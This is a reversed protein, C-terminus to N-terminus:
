FDLDAIVPAHDSPQKGKRTDRDISINKCLALLSEPGYIHDIRLGLNKPFALQRYDWWSFAQSEPQLRRFLDVFGLDRIAALAAREDPHCLVQGAWLAPDHVDRDEPAINFDGCLLLPGGQERNSDLWTKCRRLWDLKYAFKESDISGGNPVYVSAIRVPGKITAVTAVIFRSQPDEVGDGFGRQVDTAPSRTLIAVGNYTRQGFVEVEYGLAQIEARPFDADTVKTEQLCVVDPAQVSLWPLLRELRARISNVNWTAIKM